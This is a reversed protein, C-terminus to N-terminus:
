RAPATAPPSGVRPRALHDPARVGGGGAGAPGASGDPRGARPGTGGPGIGDGGLGPPLSRAPGDAVRVAGRDGGARRPQGRVGRGGRRPGPRALPGAGRRGPIRGVDGHSRVRGRGVPVAGGPVVGARVGRPHRDAGGIPRPARLARRPRGPVGGRRFGGATRSLVVVALVAGPHTNGVCGRRLTHRRRGRRASPRVGRPERGQVNPAVGGRPQTRQVVLGGGGRAGPLDGPRPDSPRASGSPGSGPGWRRSSSTWSERTCSGTSGTPPSGSGTIPSAVRRSTTRASRRRGSGRGWRLGGPM